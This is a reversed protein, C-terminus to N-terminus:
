VRERCSARGIQTSLVGITKGYTDVIKSSYSITYQNVFNSMHMDSVHCTPAKLAGQFWEAHSVNTNLHERHVASSIITGDLDMLFIDCYVEYIQHLNALLSNSKQILEETKYIVCDIITEFTAWAQVDCNREFLNRDIKDILDFAMDATRVGVLSNIGLNLNDINTQNRENAEKSAASFNQMQKAIVSFARGADGLRASEISSNISLIKSSNAISNITQTSEFTKSYQEILNQTIESINNNSGKTLGM